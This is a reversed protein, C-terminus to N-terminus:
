NAKQFATQEGEDKAFAIVSYFRWSKEAAKDKLLNITRTFDALTVTHLKGTGAETEFRLKLAPTLNLVGALGGEIVLKATTSRRVCIRKINIL